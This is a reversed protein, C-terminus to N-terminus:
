PAASQGGWARSAKGVAFFELVALYTNRSAGGWRSEANQRGCDTAGSGLRSCAM